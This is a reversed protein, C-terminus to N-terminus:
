PEHSEKKKQCLMRNETRLKAQIIDFSADGRSFNVPGEFIQNEHTKGQLNVSM